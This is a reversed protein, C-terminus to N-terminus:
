PLEQISGNRGTITRMLHGHGGEIMGWEVRGNGCAKVRMQVWELWLVAASTLIMCSRQQGRVRYFPAGLGGRWVRGEVTLATGVERESRRFVAAVRDDKGHFSAASWGTGGDRTLKRQVQSCLKTNGIM